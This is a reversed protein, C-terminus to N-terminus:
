EYLIRAGHVPLFSSKRGQLPSVIISNMMRTGYFTKTMCALKRSSREEFCPSVRGKPTVKTIRFDTDPMGSGLLILCSRRSLGDLPAEVKASSPVVPAVCM